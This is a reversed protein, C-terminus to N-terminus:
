IEYLVYRKDSHNIIKQDNNNGSLLLHNDQYQQINKRKRVDQNSFCKSGNSIKKTCSIANSAEMVEGKTVIERAKVNQMTSKMKKRNMKNGIETNLKPANDRDQPKTFSLVREQFNDRKEHQYKEIQCYETRSDKTCPQRTSMSSQNNIRVPTRPMLTTAKSCLSTSVNHTSGWNRSKEFGPFPM